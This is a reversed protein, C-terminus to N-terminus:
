NPSVGTGGAGLGGAPGFGGGGPSFFTSGSNNAGGGSEAYNQNQLSSVMASLVPDSCGLAAKIVRAKEADAGQEARVLGIAIAAKQEPNATKALAVASAAASADTKVANAIAASLAEGGNPNARLLDSMSASPSAVCSNAPQQPRRGAPKADVSTAGAVMFAAVTLFVTRNM